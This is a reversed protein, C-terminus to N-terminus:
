NIYSSGDPSIIKMVARVEDCAVEASIQGRYTALMPGTWDTEEEYSVWEVDHIYVNCVPGGYPATTNASDSLVNNYGESVTM